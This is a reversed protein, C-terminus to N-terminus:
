KIKKDKDNIPNLKVAKYTISEQYTHDETTIILNITENNQISVPIQITGAKYDKNPSKQKIEISADNSLDGIIKTPSIEKITLPSREEAQGMQPIFFLSLLLIIIAQLIFRSKM